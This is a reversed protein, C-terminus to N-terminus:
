SESRTEAPNTRFDDRKMWFMFAGVPLSFSIIWPAHVSPQFAGAGLLQVAFLRYGMQGTSWNLSFQIVGVLIFLIWLWKRPVFKARVCATLTFLIFGPVALGALLFVFHIPRKGSLTFTNAQELSLGRPRSVNIGIIEDHGDDRARFALDVLVWQHGYGFQYTLSYRTSEGSRSSAHYGVLQRETIESSILAARMRELAHDTVQEKLSQELVAKIPEFDGALLLDIHRKALAEKEDLASEEIDAFPKCAGALALLM